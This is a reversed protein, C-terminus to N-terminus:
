EIAEEFVKKVLELGLRPGGSNEMVVAIAIQPQGDTPAFAIVWGHESGGSNQATGTKAAIKIGKVAAPAASGSEVAEVMMETIAAAIDSNLVQGLTEPLTLSLSSGTASIRRGMVYPKMM